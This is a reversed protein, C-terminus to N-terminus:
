EVGLMRKLSNRINEYVLLGLVSKDVSSTLKDAM